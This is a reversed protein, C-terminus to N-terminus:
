IVSFSSFINNNNGNKESPKTKKLDKAVRL